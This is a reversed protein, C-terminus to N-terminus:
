PILRCGRSKARRNRKMRRAHPQAHIALIIGVLATSTIVFVM